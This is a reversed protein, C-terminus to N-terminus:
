GVDVTVTEFDALPLVAIGEDALAKKTMGYVWRRM